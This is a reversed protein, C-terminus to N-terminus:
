LFRKGMFFSLNGSRVLVSNTRSCPNRLIAPWQVDIRPKLIDYAIDDYLKRLTELIAASDIGYAECLGAWKESNRANYVTVPWALISCLRAHGFTSGTPHDRRLPGELVHAMGHILGVSSRAQGAAAAASLEFWEPRNGLGIALMERIIGALECRLADQALPSLFGEVAHTWADGCGNMVLDEPLSEALEPVVVRVDPALRDDVRIIKQGENNSVAIHTAEAGSGWVSPVAALLAGPCHEFRWLKAADILSGGGAVVLTGVEGPLDELSDVHEFPLLARCKQRVSGTAVVFAPLRVSAVLRELSWRDPRRM